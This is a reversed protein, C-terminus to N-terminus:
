QSFATGFRYAYKWYIDRQIEAVTTWHLRHLADTNGYNRGFALRFAFTDITPCSDNALKRRDDSSLCFEITKIKGIVTDLNESTYQYGAIVGSRTACIHFLSNEVYVSFLSSRYACPLYKGSYLRIVNVPPLWDDWGAPYGYGDVIYECDDDDVWDETLWHRSQYEPELHYEGDSWEFITEDIDDRHYALDDDACIVWEGELDAPCIYDGDNTEIRDYDHVYQACSRSDCQTFDSRLSHDNVTIERIRGWYFTGYTTDENPYSEGTYECFSFDERFCDECWYDGYDNSHAIDDADMGGGCSCCRYEYEKEVINTGNQNQCSVGDGSTSFTATDDDHDVCVSLSDMWPMTDCDRRLTFTVKGAKPFDLGALSSHLYKAPKDFKAAVSQLIRCKADRWLFGNAYVKDLYIQEKGLWVLLSVDSCLLEHESKLLYAICVKDPNLAYISLWDQCNAYRMCSGPRYHSFVPYIDDGYAIHPRFPFRELYEECFKSFEEKGIVSELSQISQRTERGSRSVKVLSGEETLKLGEPLVITSM